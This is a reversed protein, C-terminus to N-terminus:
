TSEPPRLMGGIVTGGFALGMAIMILVGPFVWGAAAFVAGVVFGVALVVLRTHERRLAATVDRDVDTYDM